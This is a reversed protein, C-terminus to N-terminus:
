YSAEVLTYIKFNEDFEEETVIDNGILQRRLQEALLALQLFNYPCSVNENADFGRAAAKEGKWLCVFISNEDLIDQYSEQYLEYKVNDFELYSKFCDEHVFPLWEGTEPSSLKKRKIKVGILTIASADFGM